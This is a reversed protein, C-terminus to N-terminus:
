HDWISILNIGLSYKFCKLAQNFPAIHFSNTVFLELFMYIINAVQENGMLRFHHGEMVYSQNCGEVVFDFAYIFETRFESRM